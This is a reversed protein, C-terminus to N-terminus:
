LNEKNKVLNEEFTESSYFRGFFNIETNGYDEVEEPVEPFEKPDFIKLNKAFEDFIFRGGLAEM